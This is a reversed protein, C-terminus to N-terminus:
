LGSYNLYANRLADGWVFSLWGAIALYPGFAIPIERGRQQLWQGLLGGIIGVGASLIIIEPLAQWGLWAGLAALLKFDGYGMGEKGTILKFLWYVSWLSLYGAVAGIIATHTDILIPFLSLILGAWLLPLTLNDPLLKTHLDILALAILVWTLGLGALTQLSVGFRWAIILSLAATLAEILPYQASIGAHCHRCRGRLLVYSLVPINDYWRIRQQCGTCHSAPYSLDFRTTDPTTTPTQGNELLFDHAASEWERKLMIPLRHIVVNLFSGILLSLLGVSLYFFTSNQEFVAIIESAPM